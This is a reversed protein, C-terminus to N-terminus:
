VKKGVVCMHVFPAVEPRSTCTVLVAGPGSESTRLLLSGVSYKPFPESCAVNPMVTLILKMNMTRARMSIEYKNGM